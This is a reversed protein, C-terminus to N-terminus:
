NIVQENGIEELVAFLEARKIPKAVFYNCGAKLAEEKDSVFANATVAIIPITRDFTRIQITAEIGDIDPMKIDMLIVDYGAVSAM